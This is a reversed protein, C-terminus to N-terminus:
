QIITNGLEMYKKTTGGFAVDGEAFLLRADKERQLLYPLVLIMTLM